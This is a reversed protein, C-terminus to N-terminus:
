DSKTYLAYLLHLYGGGPPAHNFDVWWPSRSVAIGDRIDLATAGVGPGGWGIWGSGKGDFTEVYETMLEGFPGGGMGFIVLIAIITAALM